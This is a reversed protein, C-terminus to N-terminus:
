GLSSASSELRPIVEEAFVFLNPASFDAGADIFSQPDENVCRGGLGILFGGGCQDRHEVLRHILRIAEDRQESYTCNVLVLHPKHERVASLFSTTPVSAGLYLNKWGSLRLYDSVMRLGISHWNGEVCGLIALQANRKPAPAYHVVRAMMRETIASALHEQGEDIAQVEYWKGILEMAQALVQQYIRLLSVGQRVLTDIIRTCTPEDGACAARAYQKPADDIPIATPEETDAPEILGRLTAEVEASALTYFVQRGVKSARVIGRARLKALHNSVNPQKLGTSIVLDTVSRPGAQLQALLNRRSPEAVEKFLDIM